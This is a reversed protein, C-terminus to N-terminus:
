RESPYSNWMLVITFHTTSAYHFEHTINAEWDEEEECPGTVRNLRIGKKCELFVGNLASLSLLM